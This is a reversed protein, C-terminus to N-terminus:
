HPASGAKDDDPQRGVSLLAAVPMAAYWWQLDSEFLMVGLMLLLGSLACMNRRAGNAYFMSFISLMFTLLGVVGYALLIRLFYTHSQMGEFNIGLSNATGLGFLLSGSVERYILLIAGLRQRASDDAISEVFAIANVHVMYYWMVGFGAGAGLIWAMRRPWKGLYSYLKLGVLAGEILLAGRTRNIMIMLTFIVFLLSLASERRGMGQQSGGAFLVIWIGTLAVYSSSNLHYGEPRDGNLIHELPVWAGPVIHLYMLLQLVCICLPALLFLWYLVHTLDRRDACVRFAYYFFFLWAQPILYEFFRGSNGNLSHLVDIVIWAAANLVFFAEPWSIRIRIKGGPPDHSVIVWLLILLLPAVYPLRNSFLPLPLSYKAIIAEPFSFCGFVCLALLIAIDREIRQGHPSPETTRSKGGMKM